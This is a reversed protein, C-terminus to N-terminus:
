HHHDVQARKIAQHVCFVARVLHWLTVLAVTGALGTLIATILENSLLTSLRAVGGSLFIYPVLTLEVAVCSLPGSMDTPTAAQMALRWPRLMRFVIMLIAGVGLASIALLVNAAEMLTM